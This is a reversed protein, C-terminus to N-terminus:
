SKPICKQEEIDMSKSGCCKALDGEPKKGKVYLVNCKNGECNYTEKWSCDSQICKLMKTHDGCKTADSM